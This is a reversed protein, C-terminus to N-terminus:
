VCSLTEQKKCKFGIYPKTYSPSIGLTQAFALPDKQIADRVCSWVLSKMVPDGKLKNLVDKALSARETNTLIKTKGLGHKIAVESYFKNRLRTLNDIGGVMDSGQMKGNILPLILAHAHPASEDLHVDFSLLEGAFTNLVWQHCDSFFPKTDLQHQDIPLSFIVEVARVCDKRVKEIGAELMKERALSDILTPANDGALCYNLQTRNSNINANAGHRQPLTRKNHMLAQLLHNEDKNIKGLRILHERQTNHNM